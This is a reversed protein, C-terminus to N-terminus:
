VQDNIVASGLRLEVPGPQIACYLRVSIMPVLSLSFRM